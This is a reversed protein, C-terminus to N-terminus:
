TYQDALITPLMGRGVETKSRSLDDNHIFIHIRGGSDSGASTSEGAAGVYIRRQATTSRDAAPVSTTTTSRGAATWGRAESWRRSGPAPSPLLPRLRRIEESRATSDWRCRIEESGGGNLGGGGREFRSDTRFTTGVSVLLSRQSRGRSPGTSAVISV